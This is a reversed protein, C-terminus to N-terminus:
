KTLTLELGFMLGDASQLGPADSVTGDQELVAVPQSLPAGSSPGPMMVVAKLTTTGSDGTELLGALKARLEIDRLGNADYRGLAAHDM